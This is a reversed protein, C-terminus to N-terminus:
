VDSSAGPKGLQISVARLAVEVSVLQLCEDRGDPLFTGVGRRPCRDRGCPACPLSAQYLIRAPSKLPGSFEPPRPGFIGVVPTGVAAALHLAGNDNAVVVDCAALGAAFVAVSTRGGLDVGNEAAGAAVRAALVEDGPGGFVAITGGEAALMGALATFRGEPWRRAPASSGPAIGILPRRIRGGLLQRFQDHARAPVTLQPRPPLGGPWDPDAVAMFSSVRHEDSLEAIAAWETLSWRRRGTPVGRRKPVGALWAAAAPTLDSTFLYAAGYRPGRLWTATKWVAGTNKFPIVAVDLEAMELIPVWATPCWVDVAGEDYREALRRLAPIAMVVDALEDPARAYVRRSDSESM